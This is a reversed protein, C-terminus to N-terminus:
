GKENEAAPIGSLILFVVLALFFLGNMVNVECIKYEYKLTQKTGNIASNKL